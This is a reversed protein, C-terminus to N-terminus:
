IHILSLIFATIGNKDALEKNAGSTLLAKLAPTAGLQAAAVLVPTSGTEEGSTTDPSAGAELACRVLHGLGYISSHILFLKKYELSEATLQRVTRKSVVSKPDACKRDLARMAAEDNFRPLSM